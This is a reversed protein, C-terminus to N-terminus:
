KQVKLITLPPFTSFIAPYSRETQLGLDKFSSDYLKNSKFDSLVATGGPKLVRAIERCAQQRGDKDPINHLCLNSLIVDFTEDAFSLQRADEDAISIKSSVGELEANKLTNEKRNGSLDAANWIDIGTARGSDLRKAAGIILLGRGTGVDLVQEDGRWKVMNLMRDRHSFKGVKAYLVMFLATLTFSVAFGLFMNRLGGLFSVAFSLAFLIAATLGILGLNRVVPMADVGYNPKEM